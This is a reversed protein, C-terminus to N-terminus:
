SDLPLIQLFEWRWTSNSYEDTSAFFGFYPSGIWRTDKYEFQFALPEGRAAAYLKISGDRVEIRYHNWGEPDIKTFDDNVNHGVRKMPSGDCNPCWVLSDVREFLLKLPGYYITNTNYFHNFCNDHRYWEDYSLGPPCKEGNWDGGFVMGSSHSYFPFFIKAEFDIVYPVRPAPM